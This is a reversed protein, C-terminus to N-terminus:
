RTVTILQVDNVGMTTTIKIGEKDQKYSLEEEVMTSKEKIDEVEEPKLLKPAGMQEWIGLPNCHTDDIKQVTVRKIDKVNELYLYIEEWEESQVYKQHWLMIQITDDKKYAAMEVGSGTDPLLYRENGLQNLLYFAWYAPKPIGDHNLLGFGGHFPEPYFLTEEFIDSFTWYSYGDVIGENDHITKVIFAANTKTDLLRASCASNVNWETYLLPLTGAEERANKAQRTLIGKEMKPLKTDQSLILRMIDLISKDEPHKLAESISNVFEPDASSTDHGLADGPYHHTSLFDLPLNEQRCYEQMEILWANEATSPGGVKLKEDVEKLALVTYKYLEFYGKMGGTWFFDLNPENWVEFYWSEVEEKGYRDILFLAFERILKQWQAMDKPPTKNAKYHFFTNKGSALATPMSSLEVFPRMGIKLIADYVKAVQYFSIDWVVEGGPIPVAECLTQVVNMDDHFIGHFRVREFGLTKHIFELQEQYDTRQALAAHGSGICFKWYKDSIRTEENVDFGIM